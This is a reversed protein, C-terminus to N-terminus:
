KKLPMQNRSLNLILSFGVWKKKAKLDLGVLKLTDLLNQNHSNCYLYHNIYM